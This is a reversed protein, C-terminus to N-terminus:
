QLIRGLTWIVIVVVAAGATSWAPRKVAAHEAGSGVSLGAPFLIAAALAALSGSIFIHHLVRPLGGDVWPEYRVIYTIVLAFVAYGGFAGLAGALAKRFIGAGSKRLLVSAALDFMAGLLFIALLHCFFPSANALKFLAAVAGLATSSGPANVLGRAVGLLFVAFATLWFSAHSVGNAYLFEGGWVESMGWLSGLALLWVWNKYNKKNVNMNRGRGFSRRKSENSPDM